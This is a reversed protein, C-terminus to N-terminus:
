FLKAFKGLFKECDSGEEPNISSDIVFAEPGEKQQIEKVERTISKEGRDLNFLYLPRPFTLLLRTKGIGWPGYFMWIYAPDWNCAPNAVALKAIEAYSMPLLGASIAPANFRDKVEWYDATSSLPERRGVIIPKGMQYRVRLVNDAARCFENPTRNGPLDPQGSISVPETPTQGKTTIAGGRAYVKQIDEHATFVIEVGQDRLDKTRRVFMNLRETAGPYNNVQRIKDFDSSSKGLDKSFFLRSLEGASDIALTKYKCAM